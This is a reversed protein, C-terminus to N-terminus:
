CSTAKRSCGSSAQKFTCLHPCTCSLNPSSLSTTPIRLVAYHMLSLKSVVLPPLVCRSEIKRLTLSYNQERAPRMTQTRYVVTLSASYALEGAAFPLVGLDIGNYKSWLVLGATTLTKMVVATAEAAARVKYLMGQQVAVFGPEGFLEIMAAFHDIKLAEHLYPVDPVSGRSLYLQGLTFGIPAGAALALYSLNIAAQVGGDSRRQTAIRLSERSFYLTSIVYLELQVAVGLLQPSLFRLLVQNLAFTVARSGIQLLILFTAGKATASVANDAM